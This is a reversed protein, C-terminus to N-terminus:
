AVSQANQGCAVWRKMANQIATLLGLVLVAGTIVLGVIGNAGGNGAAVQQVPVPLAQVWQELM